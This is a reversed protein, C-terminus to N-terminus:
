SIYKGFPVFNMLHGAMHLLFLVRFELLGLLLRESREQRREELEGPTGYAVVVDFGERQSALALDFVYRQAGGWNAKTILYLIRPTVSKPPHSAVNM